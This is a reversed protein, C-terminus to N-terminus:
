EDMVGKVYEDDEKRKDKGSQFGSKERSPNRQISFNVKLHPIQTPQM